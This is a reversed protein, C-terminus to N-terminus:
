LFFLQFFFNNQLATSFIYMYDFHGYMSVEVVHVIHKLYILMLGTIPESGSYDQQLKKMFSEYYGSVFNIFICQLNHHDVTKLYMRSRTM